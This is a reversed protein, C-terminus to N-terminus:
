FERTHRLAPPRGDPDFVFRYLEGAVARKVGSLDPVGNTRLRGPPRPGRRGGAHWADLERATRAFADFAAVPDHLDADDGDARDLHERALGLRLDRAYEGPGDLVACTLESDFTWSRM